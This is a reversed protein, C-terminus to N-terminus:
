SITLHLLLLSYFPWPSKTTSLFLGHRPLLSSQTKLFWLVPLPSSNNAFERLVLVSLFTFNSSSRASAAMPSLTLCSWLPLRDFEHILSGYTSVLFVARWCKQNLLKPHQRLLFSYAISIPWAQPIGSVWRKSSLQLCLVPSSPCNAQGRPANALKKSIITNIHPVNKANLFNWETGKGYGM